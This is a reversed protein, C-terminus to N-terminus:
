LWSHTISMIAVFACWLTYWLICLGIAAASLRMGRAFVIATIVLLMCAWLGAKPLWAFSPEEKFIVGCALIFIPALLPSLAVLVGCVRMSKKYANFALASLVLAILFISITRAHLGGITLWKGLTAGLAMYALWLFYSM